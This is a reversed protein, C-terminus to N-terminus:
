YITVDDFPGYTSSNIYGISDCNIGLGFQHNINKCFIFPADYFYPYAGSTRFFVDSVTAGDISLYTKPSLRTPGGVFKHVENYYHTKENFSNIAITVNCRLCGYSTIMQESDKFSKNVITFNKINDIFIDFVRIKILRALSNNLKLYEAIVVFADSCNYQRTKVLDVFFPDPSLLFKVNDGSPLFDYGGELKFTKSTIERDLNECELTSTGNVFYLDKGLRNTVEIKVAPEGKENLTIDNEKFDIKLQGYFYNQIPPTWYIGYLGFLFGLIALISLFTSTKNIFIHHHWCFPSNKIKKNNCRSGRINRECLHEECYGYSLLNENTCNESKCGM